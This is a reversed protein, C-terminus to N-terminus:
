SGLWGGGELVAAADYMLISSFADPVGGGAVMANHMLTQAHLLADGEGALGLEVFVHLAWAHNTANDPQLEAVHWRGADAVREVCVGRTAWVGLAHLAALETQTWREIGVDPDFPVVPGSTSECREAATADDHVLSAFLAADIQAPALPPEITSGGGLLRLLLWRDVGRRHGREDRFSGALADSAGPDARPGTIADFVPKGPAFADFGRLALRRLRNAWDGRSTEADM